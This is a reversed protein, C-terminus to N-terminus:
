LHDMVHLCSGDYRDEDRGADYIRVDDCIHAADFNLFRPM